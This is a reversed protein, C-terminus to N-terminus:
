ISTAPGGLSGALQLIRAPEEPFGTKASLYASEVVAMSKLNEAATTVPRHEDPALLSHALATLLREEALPQERDYRWTQDTRARRTKLTVEDPSVTLRADKGHIEICTSDPAIEGRRTAIVSGMLSDTFKMCVVVVDETLSLRQQKDPATNTKLAYVQGPIPFNWLIQDITGFCDHLLVGGGALKPDSQWAPRDAAGFSCSASILFPHEVCGQSLLERAALYSSQFRTPNFVAFQVNESEAMQVYELTEEFTRAPPALKLVHFGKKIAARIQEDCTHTEAAVILCDFRNQVILQRYDSYAQCDHEAAVKEARPLDQDAVARIQFLGTAVATQLIRRGAENLGLVATALTESAM